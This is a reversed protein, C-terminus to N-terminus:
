SAARPPATPLGRAENASAYGKFWAVHRPGTGAAILTQAEDWGIPWAGTEGNFFYPALEESDKAWQGTLPHWIVLGCYRGFAAVAWTERDRLRYLRMFMM